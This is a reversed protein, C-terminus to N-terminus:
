QLSFRFAREVRRRGDTPRDSGSRQERSISNLRLKCLSTSSALGYVRRGTGLCVGYVRLGLNLLLLGTILLHLSNTERSTTTPARRGNASNTCVVLPICLTVLEHVM